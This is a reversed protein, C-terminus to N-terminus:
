AREFDKKDSCQYRLWYGIYHWAIGLDLLPLQWLAIQEGYARVMRWVTFIRWVILLLLGGAIAAMVGNQQTVAVALAALIVWYSLHIATQTLAFCLRPIFTRQLHRRTDMYFLQRAKWQRNSPAEQRIHAESAKCVAIREPESENVLFDFEGRLQRLNKLFGNREMFAQKRIAVNAGDCSYPRQQQRWWSYLRLYRRFPKADHDYGTYGLVVDAEDTMKQFMTNLWASDEPHCDAETIIVWEGKAAKIGLTIALKRRSVYHSSAPIYTAYLNPHESGLKKLVDGTEDTSSEDVVIVEFGPAFDQALLVPLNRQLEPAQNHAAIVISIRVM